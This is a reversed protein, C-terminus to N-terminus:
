RTSRQLRFRWRALHALHLVSVDGDARLARHPERDGLRRRRPFALLCRPRYQFSTADFREVRATQSSEWTLAPYGLRDIDNWTTLLAAVATCLRPLSGWMAGRPKNQASCAYDPPDTRALKPPHRDVSRASSAMARLEGHQVLSLAAVSPSLQNRKCVRRRLGDLRQECVCRHRHALADRYIVLHDVAQE